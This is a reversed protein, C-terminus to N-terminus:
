MVNCAYTYVHMICVYLYVYICAHMRVYMCVYICVHLWVFMFVYMCICAYMYLCILMFVHMCLNHVDVLMIRGLDCIQFLCVRKHFIRGSISIFAVSQQFIRNRVDTNEVMFEAELFPVNQIM